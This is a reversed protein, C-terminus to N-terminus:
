TEENAIVEKMMPGDGQDICLPSHRQGAIADFKRTTKEESEM